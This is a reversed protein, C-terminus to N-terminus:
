YFTLSKSYTHWETSLTNILLSSIFRMPKPTISENQECVELQRIETYDIEEVFPHPPLSAIEEYQQIREAM